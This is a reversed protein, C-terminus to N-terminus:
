KLTHLYTMIRAIDKKVIQLKHTTKLQGLKVKTSMDHLEAQLDELMHRIEAEPKTTLEKYKMSDYNTLRRRQAYRYETETKRGNAPPRKGIRAAGGYVM